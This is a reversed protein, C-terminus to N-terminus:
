MGTHRMIVSVGALLLAGGIIFYVVAPGIARLPPFPNTSRKPSVDLEIRQGRWYKVRPEGTHIKGIGVNGRWVQWGTYVLYGGGGVFLVALVPWPIVPANAILAIVIILGIWRWDFRVPRM